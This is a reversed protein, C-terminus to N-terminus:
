EHRLVEIPDISIAKIAPYIGAIIGVLLSFGLTKVMFLLDYDMALFGQIQPLTVLVRMIAYGLVIGTVGGLVGYIASELIVLRTIRSNRWGVARLIGIEKTRELVATTMTNAIGMIAILLAVISIAWTFSFITSFPTAIFSQVDKVELDKFEYNIKNQVKQAIDQRQKLSMKLLNNSDLKLNIATIKGPTNKIKQLTSLPMIITSDELMNTSQFIGCIHFEEGRINIKDGCNKNLRKAAILGLLVDQEDKLFSGDIKLGDFLYSGREWGTILFYQKPQVAYFYFIIPSAQQVHPILKLSAVYSQDITSSFIDLTSKEMVILDTARAKYTTQLSKELNHTLGRLSVFASISIGVGLITLVSRVKQHWLNKCIIRLLSMPKLKGYLINLFLALLPPL